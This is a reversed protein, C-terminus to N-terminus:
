APKKGEEQPQTNESLRALITPMNIIIFEQANSDYTIAIYSSKGYKSDRTEQRIGLERGKATPLKSSKGDDLTAIEMYDEQLLYDMVDRYTLKKMNETSTLSNIRRLIESLSIPTYSYNYNKLEDESISFPKKDSSSRRVVGGNAIVQRLLDSVYFLCRSIRINNVCDNETVPMDTIPNVGNALKDVYDKARITIEKETM